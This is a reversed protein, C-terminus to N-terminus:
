KKSKKPLNLEDDEIVEDNVKVELFVNKFGKSIVSEAFDDTFKESKQLLIDRTFNEGLIPFDFTGTKPFRDINLTYKKLM